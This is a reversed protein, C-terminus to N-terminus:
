FDGAKRHAELYEPLPRFRSPLEIRQGARNLFYEQLSASPLHERITKSLVLRYDEDFAILKRDFAADYTASLCLGNRPDMRTHKREAWGIIHSARNVAPLDLGTLCCRNQYIELIIERFAHQGIRTKAERLRDKGDKSQPDQVTASPVVPDLQNLQKALADEDGHHTHLLDLAESAHQHQPLFAILQALAASCYGNSLYSSSGPLYWPTDPGVKAEALVRERLEVLREVSDVSWLDICDDFGYSETRLMTQLHKLATLYSGAKKSGELNESYLYSEFAPKLPNTM